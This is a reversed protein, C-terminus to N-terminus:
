YYARTLRHCQYDYREGGDCTEPSADDECKEDGPPPRIRTREGAENGVADHQHPAKEGVRAHRAAALQEEHGQDSIQRQGEVENGVEDRDGALQIVHDDDGEYESREHPSVATRQQTLM